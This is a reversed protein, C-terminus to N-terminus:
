QFGYKERTQKMFFGLMLFILGLCIIPPYISIQNFHSNATAYAASFFIVIFLILNVQAEAKKELNGAM